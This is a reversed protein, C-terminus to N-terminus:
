EPVVFLWPIPGMALVLKDSIPASKKENLLAHPTFLPIIPGRQMAEVPFMSAKNIKQIRIRLSFIGGKKASSPIWSM